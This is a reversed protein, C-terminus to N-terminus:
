KEYDVRLAAKSGKRLMFRKDIAYGMVWMIRGNSLLLPIHDRLFRPIKKDIFFNKLKKTGRTGLPSFSDGPRRVRIELPYRVADLDFYQRKSTCLRVLRPPSAIKPMLKTTVLVDLERILTPGGILVAFSKSPPTSRRRSESVLGTGGSIELRLKGPMDLKGSVARLLADAEDYHVAELMSADPKARSVLQSLIRKRLEPHLAALLRADFVVWGPRAEIVIEGTILGAETRVFDNAVALSAAASALREKIRPNYERQLLPLLELRIKNRLYEPSENSVDKRYRLKRSRVYRMIDSRWANILPRIITPEGSSGLPRVPPIGALGDPGAGRILRMLMTEAQDDATHGVAVRNTGLSLSSRLLFEYRLRRGADETSLRQREAYAGVDASSIAFPLGKQRALREAFRADREAAEGRLKHNFHAVCIDLSYKARLEELISLLCVSDPGGSLAVLVRDGKLLM